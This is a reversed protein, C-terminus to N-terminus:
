GWEEGDDEWYDEDYYEFYPNTEPVPFVRKTKEDYVGIAILDSLGPDFLTKDAGKSIYYDMTGLKIKKLKLVPAEEEKPEPKKRPAVKVKSSVPTMEKPMAEELEIVPEKEVKAKAKSKRKPTGYKKRYEASCEPKSLACGYSLNNKRAFEKVFEVWRSPM